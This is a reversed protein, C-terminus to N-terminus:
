KRRYLQVLLSKFTLLSRVKADATNLLRSRLEDIERHAESLESKYKDILLILKRNKVFVDDADQRAGLQDKVSLLKRQLSTM